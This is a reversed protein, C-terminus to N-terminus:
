RRPFVVFGGEAFGMPRNLAPHGKMGEAAQLTAAMPPSRFSPMGQLPSAAPRQMPQPQPASLPGQQMGQPQGQPQPMLQPPPPALPAAPPQQAGQMAGLAEAIDM